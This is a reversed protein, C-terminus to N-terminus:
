QAAFYGYIAFDYWELVHGIIGAAIVRRTPAASMKGGFGGRLAFLERRKLQDFQLQRGLWPSRPLMGRQRSRTRTCHPIESQRIVAHPCPRCLEFSCFSDAQEGVAASLRVNSSKANPGPPSM